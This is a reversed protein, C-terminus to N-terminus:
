FGSCKMAKIFQRRKRYIDTIDGVSGNTLHEVEPHEAVSLPICLPTGASLGGLIPGIPLCYKHYPPKGAREESPRACLGVLSQAVIEQGTCYAVRRLSSGWRGPASIYSM